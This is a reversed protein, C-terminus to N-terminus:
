FHAPVLPWTGQANLLMRVGEDNDELRQEELLLMSTRAAGGASQPQFPLWECSPGVGVVVERLPEGLEPDDSTVESLLLAQATSASPLGADDEAWWAHTSPAPRPPGFEHALVRRRRNTAPETGSSGDFRAGPKFGLQERFARWDLRGHRRSSLATSDDTRQPPEVRVIGAEWNAMWLQQSGGKAHTWGDHSLQQERGCWIPMGWAAASFNHSGVYVWGCSAGEATADWWRVAVKSHQMATEGRERDKVPFGTAESWRLPVMECNRAVLRESPEKSWRALLLEWTRDTFQFCWPLRPPAQELKDRRVAKIQGGGGDIRVCCREASADGATIVGCRGNLEVGGASTLGVIRVRGGVRPEGRDDLMRARHRAAECLRRLEDVSPFVIEPCTALPRRSEIAMAWCAADEDASDVEDHAALPGPQTARAWAGVFRRGQATAVNGVSSSAYWYAKPATAPWTYQGLVQRMRCLGLPRQLSALLHVLPLALDAQRGADARAVRVHLLLTEMGVRSRISFLDEPVVRVGFSLGSAGRALPAVWAAIRRPLWGVQRGGLGPVLSVRVAHAGDTCSPRPDLELAHMGDADCDARMATVLRNVEQSSPRYDDGGALESRFVGDAGPPVPPTAIPFIGPRSTVLHVQERNPPTRWDYLALRHLLQADEATPSCPALMAALYAALEAGLDVGALPHPHPSSTRPFDCTWLHNRTDVWQHRTHNATSVIVRVSAGRFLVIIKSHVCGILGRPTAHQRHEYESRKGPADAFPPFILTAGPFGPVADPRDVRRDAAKGSWCREPHHAAIITPVYHGEKFGLARLIWRANLGMTTLIIGQVTEPDGGLARLCEAGPLGGPGTVQLEPWAPTQTCRQRKRAETATATAATTAAAATATAATAAADAQRSSM